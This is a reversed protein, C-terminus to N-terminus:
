TMDLLGPIGPTVTMGTMGPIVSIGSIWIMGPIGIMPIGSMARIMIM